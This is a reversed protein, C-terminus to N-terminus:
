SNGQSPITQIYEKMRKVAEKLSDYSSAFAMRVHYELGSGFATGPVIAVRKKMLLTEAFTLADQGTSRVSPFVYFTGQPVHCSLGMENLSDVIFRRRRIYEKRMEVVSKRSNRLAEIGAMQGTIPACMITYQHIKTMAAVIDKPGCVWGIRSGTMAYGKSLGNLYVTRDKMGPLSPFPTHDFEFSLEDYVEDSIVILDYKRVVRSIALLEKRTYSTGTPNCPYNILIAKVNKHSRCVKEIDEPQLKFGKEAKTAIVVAEGGALVTMPKYSVYSPEVVIVKEGPNLIARMVLDVGESVGVTILMEQEVDYHLDYRSKLFHAIEKRFEVLGKNSTYSTYGQELSDIAKERINWPTVFDPEGVGLSVVDKMGLVLDFFKRIGSPPLDQVVKSIRESM